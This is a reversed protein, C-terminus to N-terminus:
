FCEQNDFNVSLDLSPLRFTEASVAYVTQRPHEVIVKDVQQGFMGPKPATGALPGKTTAQADIGIDVGKFTADGTLQALDAIMNEATATGGSKIVMVVSDHGLISFPLPVKVSQCLNTFEAHQFGSLINPKADDKGGKTGAVSGYQVVNTAEMHDGSVKFATGSIAFSMPIAGNAAAMTLGSIIVVGPVLALGFRKWRTRGAKSKAM